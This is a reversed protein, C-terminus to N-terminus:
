NDLPVPGQADGFVRSWGVEIVAIMADHAAPADRASIADAIQQHRDCISRLQEPRPEPSSRRLLSLLAAEVLSVVSHFFANGAADFVARHFELDAISFETQDEANRMSEVCESILEMEAQTAKQAALRAAFPEFALRMEFLQRYFADSPEVDLHWRLVQVDFMNWERRPRVRTGVRAKAVVMGKAALTKMAERMVTRSVGFLEILEEDRPLLEGAPPNGAVLARGIGEVVRGHNSRSQLFGTDIWEPLKEM